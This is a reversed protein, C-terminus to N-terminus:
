RSKNKVWQRNHPILYHMIVVTDIGGATLGAVGNIGGKIGGKGIGEKLTIGTLLGLVM